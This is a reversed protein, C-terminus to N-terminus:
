KKKYVTTVDFTTEKGQWKSTGKAHMILEKGKIEFTRTENLMANSDKMELKNDGFEGSGVSAADAGWNDFWFTKAKGQSDVGFLGMGEYKMKPQDVGTAKLEVILYQHNLGWRAKMVEHMKKGMMDSDGQWTGVMADYVKNEVPKPPTMANDANNTQTEAALAVNCCLLSILLWKLKSM